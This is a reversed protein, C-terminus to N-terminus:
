TCRWRGTPRSTRAERPASAQGGPVDDPRRARQGALVPAAHGPQHAGRPQRAHARAAISVIRVIGSSEAASLRVNLNITNDISGLAFGLAGGSDPVSPPPCTSRSTRTRSRGRSRRSVPRPRRRNDYNGGSASVNSPFAIGTPNGTAQSFTIDGGWQIGVDRLYKSTAEVIRAEVLVQPTQTDLARVLEEVHNLNGASTERSSCTPARTSPSPGELRSSTRARPGPARRRERLEGPHPADRAACARAGAQPARARARTGEPSSLLPAVRILNGQRVM